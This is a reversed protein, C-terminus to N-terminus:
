VLLGFYKTNVVNMRMMMIILGDDDDGYGDSKTNNM